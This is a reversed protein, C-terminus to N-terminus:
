LRMVKLPNFFHLGVVRDPRGTYEALKSISLSSTNTTFITHQPCYQECEQFVKGKLELVEPIAEIVMDADKVAEELEIIPTIRSLIAEVDEKLRGRKADKDLSAKIREYGKQVIEESIDRMKVKFGSIAALEAIAHGMVGAGLVCITKIKVM